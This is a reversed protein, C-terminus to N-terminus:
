FGLWLWPQQLTLFLKLSHSKRLMWVCAREKCGGCVMRGHLHVWSRVAGFIMFSFHCSLYIAIYHSPYVGKELSIMASKELPKIYMYHREKVTDSCWQLLVSDLSGKKRSVPSCHYDPLRSTTLWVPLIFIFGMRGDDGGGDYMLFLSMQPGTIRRTSLLVSFNFWALLCLLIVTLHAMLIKGKLCLSKGQSLQLVQPILCM